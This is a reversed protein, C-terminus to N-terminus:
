RAHHGSANNRGAMLLAPPTLLQSLVEEVDEVIYPKRLLPVHRLRPAIDQPGFGTALVIPVGKTILADAVADVPKDHLWYDLFAVDARAQQALCMAASAESASGVVECGMDTLIDQLALSVLGDDEAVLVRLGSFRENAPRSSTAAFNSPRM